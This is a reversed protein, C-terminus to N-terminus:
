FSPWSGDIAEHCPQLQLVFAGRRHQRPQPQTGACSDKAASGSGSQVSGHRWAAAPMCARARRQQAAAAASAHALPRCLLACRRSATDHVPRIFCWRSNHIEGLQLGVFIPARLLPLRLHLSTNCANVDIALQLSGRCATTCYSPGFSCGYQRSPLAGPMPLAQCCAHQSIRRACGLM